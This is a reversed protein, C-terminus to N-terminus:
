RAGPPRPMGTRPMTVSRRVAEIAARADEALAADGPHLDALARSAAAWTKAAAFRRHKAEMAVEGDLAATAERARRALALARAPDPAARAVPLVAAGLDAPLELTYGRALAEADVVSSASLGLGESLLAISREDLADLVTSPVRGLGEVFARVRAPDLVAPSLEDPHGPIRAREDHREVADLITELTAEGPAIHQAGVILGIRHAALAELGTVAIV